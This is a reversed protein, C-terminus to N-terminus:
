LWIPPWAPSGRQWLAFVIALRSESEKNGAVLVFGMDQNGLQGWFLFFEGLLITSDGAGGPSGSPPTQPSHWLSPPPSHCMREWTVHMPPRSKKRQKEGRKGDMGSKNAVKGEDFTILSGAAICANWYRCARSRLSVNGRGRTLILPLHRGRTPDKLHNLISPRNTPQASCAHNGLSSQSRTKVVRLNAQYM